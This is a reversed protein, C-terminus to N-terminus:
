NADDFQMFYSLNDCQHAATENNREPNTKQKKLTELSPIFNRRPLKGARICAHCRGYRQFYFLPISSEMIFNIEIHIGKHAIVYSIQFLLPCM